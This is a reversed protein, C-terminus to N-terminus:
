RHSVYKEARTLQLLEEFHEWVHPDFDGAKANEIVQAESSAGAAITSVAEHAKVFALAIVAPSLESSSWEAIRQQIATVEEESHGLMEMPEKGILFGKAVGGRVIVGIGREHLYGLTFEEPRRDLLSYQTMVSVMKSRNGWERITNPRISSIGYHRIHGEQKLEEFAEITESIPDQLTGGHLQYLDIYDTKLRKLSHHVSEKIYAKSPNWEWGVQGTIRQNGVKTAIIVKDRRGEFAKGLSIENEGGDYLDATDFFNIGHDMACHLIRANQQHDLGLSMCGLGIVSVELDSNGLQRYQM